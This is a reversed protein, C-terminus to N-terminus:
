IYDCISQYMEAYSRMHVYIVAQLFSTKTVSTVNKTEFLLFERFLSRRLRNFCEFCFYHRTLCMKYFIAETLLEKCVFVKAEHLIKLVLFAVVNVVDM